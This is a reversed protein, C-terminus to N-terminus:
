DHRRVQGCLGALAGPQPGRGAPAPPHPAPGRVPRPARGPPLHPPAWNTNICAHMCAHIHRISPPPVCARPHARPPLRCALAPQADGWQWQQKHADQHVGCSMGLCVRVCMCVRARAVALRDTLAASPCTCGLLGMVALQPRRAYAWGIRVSLIAALMHFRHAAQMGFCCPAQKSECIGDHHVGGRAPQFAAPANHEEQAWGAHLCPGRPSLSTLGAAGGGGGFFCLCVRACVCACRRVELLEQGGFVLLM